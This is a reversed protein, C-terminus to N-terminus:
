TYQSKTDIDYSSYCGIHAPNTLKDCLILETKLWQNLPLHNLKSDDHTEIYDYIEDSTTFHKEIMFDYEKSSLPTIRM